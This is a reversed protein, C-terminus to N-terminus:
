SYDRWTHECNTCRYFQTTSEDISRTQVMWWYAEDNGCKECVIKTKPMTSLKLEKKGVVIIKEDTKNERAVHLTDELPEEWECKPCVYCKKVTNPQCFAGCEPCFKVM